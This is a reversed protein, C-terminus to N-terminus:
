KSYIVRNKGQEKAQYLAKDAREFATHINDASHIHTAGISSSLTVKTNKFKFPLRTVNMRIKELRQILEKEPVNLFIMVFEEGGYRAVFVEKDVSKLLTNAIVQLTKDGATHGFTDNIRKFDDLDIVAIALDFNKHQFRVMQKAFFDDFAARNNLKTLADQLSKLRQEHLRKEFSKSQVELENVQEQMTNLQKSLAENRESELKTKEALTNAIDTLRINIDDKLNELSFAKDVVSTMDNIQETLKLNLSDRKKDSNKCTELTSRVAIQVTSLADSLTTLFTKAVDRQQQIEASIINFVIVLNNLLTENSPESNLESKIKLLQKQNQDSLSLVDLIRNIENIVGSSIDSEVDATSGAQNNSALLGGKPIDNNSNSLADEYMTLLTNLSPIYQTVADKSDSHGELLERLNRRVLPPLGKTKQLNKGALHFQEHLERIQNENKTGHQKLLNSIIHIEEEIDTFVASKKLLQRLKGLRNDLELDIGKCVLSLKDIFEILLTSQAKFDEELSARSSIALALKAKLQKLHENAVTQDNM